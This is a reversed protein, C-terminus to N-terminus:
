LNNASNSMTLSGNLILNGSLDIDIAAVSANQAIPANSTVTGAFTTLSANALTLTSGSSITL